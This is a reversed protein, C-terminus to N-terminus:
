QRMCIPRLARGISAVQAQRPDQGPRVHRVRGAARGCLMRTNVQELHYDGNTLSHRSQVPRPPVM